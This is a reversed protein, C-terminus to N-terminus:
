ELQPIVVIGLSTLTRNIARRLEKSRARLARNTSSFDTLDDSFEGEIWRHPHKWTCYPATNSTVLSKGDHRTLDVHLKNGEETGKVVRLAGYTSSIDTLDGSIDGRDLPTHAKL